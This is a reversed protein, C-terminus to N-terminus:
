NCLFINLVRYLIGTTFHSLIAIYNSYLIDSARDIASAECNRVM